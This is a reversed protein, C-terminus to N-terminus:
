KCITCTINTNPNCSEKCLKDHHYHWVDYFPKADAHLTPNSVWPKYRGGYHISRIKDFPEWMRNVFFAHNQPHVFFATIEFNYFAPLIVIKDGFYDNLIAQDYPGKPVSADFNYSRSAYDIAMAFLGNFHETNPEFVLFDGNIAPASKYFRWLHLDAVGCPLPWCMFLTDLSQLVIVDLGIWIARQCETINWANFKYFYHRTDKNLSNFLDTFPIVRITWFLLLEKHYHVLPPEDIPFPTLLILSHSTNTIKLSYGLVLAAVIYTKSFASLMSIYCYKSTNSQVATMFHENQNYLQEMVVVKNQNRYLVNGLLIMMGFAVVLLPM